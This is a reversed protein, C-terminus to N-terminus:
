KLARVLRFGTVKDAKGSFTRSTTTDCDAISDTFAGGRASTSGGDQVLEQANGIYNVLGWGNPKGTKSEVLANGRILSGGVSVQCNFDKEAVKGTATAAYEWEKSTPLRYDVGTSASLWTAYEQIKAVPLGVVPFAAGDSAVESGSCKGSLSCFLKYDGYTIEYKSITFSQGFGGGAPLVVMTPGKDTASLMDNCVGRGKSGYGALDATCPSQSPVQVRATTSAPVVVKPAKAPRPAGTAAQGDAPKAEGTTETATGPQQGDTTLSSEAPTTASEAPLQIEKFVPDDGLIRKAEPLALRALAVDSTVLSKIVAAVKPAMDQKLAKVDGATLGTTMEGLLREAVQLNEKTPTKFAKVFDVKKKESLYRQLDQQLSCEGTIELLSCLAVANDFQKAKASTEALRTYAEALAPPAVDKIFLDDPALKTLEDLSKRASRVENAKAQTLMTQKLADIKALKAQDERAQEFAKQSEALQTTEVAWEPLDPVYLRGKGLLTEAEAFRAAERASKIQALYVRAIQQRIDNMVVTQNQAVAVADMELLLDKVSTEWSASLEPQAILADLKQKNSAFVQKVALEESDKLGKAMAIGADQLVKSQPILLAVDQVLKLGEQWKGQQGLNRAYNVVQAAVKQNGEGVITASEDLSSIEDLKDLAATSAALDFTSVQMATDFEKSLTDIKEKRAKEMSVRDAEAMTISAQKEASEIEVLEKKLQAESATHGAILVLGSQIHQKAKTWDQGRRDERALKIFAQSVAVKAQDIVHADVNAAAMRKMASEATDEAAGDLKGATVAAIVSAMMDKQIQQQAQQQQIMYDHKQAFWTASSLGKYRSLVEEYGPWDHALEAKALNVDALDVVAAQLNKLSSSEPDLDRLAKVTVELSKTDSLSPLSPIAADIVGSLQAIKEAQDRRNKESKITDSVNVLAADGAFRQLGAATLAEASVFDKKALQDKAANM